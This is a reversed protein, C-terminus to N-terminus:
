MLACVAHCFGTEARGDAANRASIRGADSGLSEITPYVQQMLACLERCPLWCRRDEFVAGCRMKNMSTHWGAGFPSM